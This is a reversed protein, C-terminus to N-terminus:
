PNEYPPPLSNAGDNMQAPRLGSLDVNDLVRLNVPRYTEAWAKFPGDRESIADDALLANRENTMCVGCTRCFTKSMIHRAFSYRGIDADDGALVVAAVPPYVWRCGNRECISCNCEVIRDDYSDDLPKSMLAVRVKGCHCSGTYLQKGAVAAPLSGKYEHPVYKNGMAAGDFMKRELKWTNLGQIAHVNLGRQKGPPGDPFVGMLPTACKPCFKHFMKGSGFSYSTLEDDTGKVARFDDSEGVFVWLYGKKRCISCNCEHASTIEPLKAEYVYAGCHCNGRYTQTQTQTTTM